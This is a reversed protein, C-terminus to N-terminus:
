EVPFNIRGQLWIFGKFRRGVQPEGFLDMKNIIVDFTLENCCITLLFLEEGTLENTREEMKVIEGLISYHDCEVGYPMFHTDVISYVDEKLIKKSITTYMDMDEMTLKEIADEDGRRAAVILKSRNMSEKRVQSKQFEDKKIPMMITGGLSLASLTLTTGRVPLKGAYKANVYPIMNQLYFILTIGVNIDDCVGAYSEKAAHREVSVDDTSTVGQGKLYPYYYEYNFKDDEDFEGCVAIGMGPAFSKCFEGLMVDEENLTYAREDSNMVISKLLDKLKKRDTYESFGIARMFKHM